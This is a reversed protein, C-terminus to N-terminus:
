NKLLRFVIPSSTWDEGLILKFAQNYTLKRLCICFLITEDGKFFITLDTKKQSFYM